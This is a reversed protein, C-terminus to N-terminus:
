PNVSLRNESVSLPFFIKKLVFTIKLAATVYPKLLYVLLSSEQPQCLFILKNTERFSHWLSNLVPGLGGTMVFRLHCISSSVPFSSVFCKKFADTNQQKESSRTNFYLHYVWTFFFFFFNYKNLPEGGGKPLCFILLACKTRIPLRDSKTKKM